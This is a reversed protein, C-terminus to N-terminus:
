HIIGQEKWKKLIRSSDTCAQEEAVIYHQQLLYTVTREDFEMGQIQEFLWAASENLSIIKNFNVQELGEGVIVHEGCISRLTFGKKIRMNAKITIHPRDAKAQGAARACGSENM